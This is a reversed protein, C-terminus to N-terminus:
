MAPPLALLLQAGGGVGEWNRSSQEGTQLEKSAGGGVLGATRLEERHILRESYVTHHRSAAM